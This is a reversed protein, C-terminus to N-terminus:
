TKVSALTLFLLRYDTSECVIKGNHWITVIGQCLSMSYGVHSLGNVWHALTEVQEGTLETM